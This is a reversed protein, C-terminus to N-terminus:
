EAIVSCDDYVISGTNTTENTSYIQPIIRKGSATATGTVKMLTWSGTPLSSVVTSGLKINSSYDQAYELFRIQVNLNASTPQVYCQATYRKGAVSNTVVSNHTLGVLNVATSTAAVKLAYSGGHVPTSVRTLNGVSFAVWGGNGNEFGPDSLLELVAPAPTVTNSSQSAAGTGASNTAAVTFTYSVDNSLGNVTIPSSSGSATLGGPNATVTYGSIPAGGNSVPASFTVTAKSDGAIATVATPAGPTTIVPPPTTGEPALWNMGSASFNSYSDTIYGSPYASHTSLNVYVSSNVTGNEADINLLRVHNQYSSHYATMIQAVKNGNVGTAESYYAGIGGTASPGYHGSLTLKINAYQSILQDWMVQANQDGYNGTTPRGGNGDIYAHTVIIVNHHSHAAVVQKAWDLVTQRPWMELTLVLWDKSGATFTQYMNDVKNAEFTGQVNKLHALPFAQNFAATNRLNDRTNGPAASGGVTVAAGDHNGPAYTYPIDSNDLIATATAARTFQVPDAVGWNVVDGTHAIFKLNLPQKNDVLWQYRNPLLPNNDALVEQQTDPVQAITFTTEPEALTTAPASSTQVLVVALTSGLIALTVLARSKLQQRWSKIVIM